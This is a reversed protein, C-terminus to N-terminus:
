IPVSRVHSRRINIHQGFSPSVNTSQLNLQRQKRPQGAPNAGHQRGQPGIEHKCLSRMRLRTWSTFAVETAPSKPKINKVMTVISQDVASIMVPADIAQIRSYNLINCM